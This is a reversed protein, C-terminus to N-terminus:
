SEDHFPLDDLQRRASAADASRVAAMMLAIHHALESASDALAAGRPDIVTSASSSMSAREQEVLLYTQDLATLTYTGSISGNLWDDVVATATASLSQFAESHDVLQQDKRSCSSACLLAFIAALRVGHM